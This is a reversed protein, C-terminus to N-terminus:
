YSKSLIIKIFTKKKSIFCKKYIKNKNYLYKFPICRISLKLKKKIKKEIKKKGNWYTYIIKKKNKKNINKINKLYIKNKKFHKKHKLYLRKQIKCLLKKIYNINKKYYIKKKKYKDRRFIEIKKKLFEKYGISIRIPIGKKEYKIFKKKLSIKYNFDIKYSINHKKLKYKILNVFKFIKINFKFFNNWIPIIIIKIPAIKPPIILGYKDSHIMTIAGILRTSTGWSNSFIYKYKNKNNLYKINNPISFNKGLYHITAIQISKNNPTFTELSLTFVAGSFKDSKSKLGSKTYLALYKKFFNKYIYLIKKIEKLAYYKNKHGSHAEQLFFENNRLFFKNKKEWRIVNSWINLLIPLSKYSKIKYKNWIISESTPRIIYKNKNIKTYIKEKIFGKYHINNKKLINNNILLPYYLNKYKIYLIKKNLEKKINNWINLGYSKIIICGKTSSYNALNNKIILKEYTNSLM